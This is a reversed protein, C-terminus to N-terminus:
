SYVAFLLEETDNAFAIFFAQQWKGDWDKMLKSFNPFLMAVWAPNEGVLCIGIVDM